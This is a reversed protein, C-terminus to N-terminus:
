ALSLVAGGAGPPQRDDSWSAGSIVARLPAPHTGGRGDIELWERDLEADTTETDIHIM